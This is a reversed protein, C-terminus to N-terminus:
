ARQYLRVCWVCEKAKAINHPNQIPKQLYKLLVHVFSSTYKENYLAIRSVALISCTLHVGSCRMLSGCRIQVLRKVRVTNNIFKFFAMLEIVKPLIKSQAGNTATEKRGKM